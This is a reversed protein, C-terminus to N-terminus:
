IMEHLEAITVQCYLNIEKGRMYWEQMKYDYEANINTVVSVGM